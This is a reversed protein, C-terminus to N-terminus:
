EIKLVTWFPMKWKSLVRKDVKSSKAWKNRYKVVAEKCMKFNLNWNINIQERYSPGKM